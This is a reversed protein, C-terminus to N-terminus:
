ESVKWRDADIEGNYARKPTIATALIVVGGLKILDGVIFPMAGKELLGWFSLSSGKVLLFWLYLQLLGPTYILLFNAFLMLALMNLLCRVKIYRDVFYGIFLASIIFGILYGGTPGAIVGIGGSGGAFWPIGVMGIGLYLAQSIGGWWRGLFVGSFLVAFTQGTIPVPTWPLYIRVQALIGTLCAFGFALLVKQGLALESRWQFLNYRLEKFRKIALGIEM